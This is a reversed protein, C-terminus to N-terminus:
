GARGELAPVLDGVPLPAQPGLAPLTGTRDALEYALQRATQPRRQLFSPRQGIPHPAVDPIDGFALTVVICRVRWTLDEGAAVAIALILTLQKRHHQVFRPN